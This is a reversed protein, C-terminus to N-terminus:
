WKEGLKAQVGIMGRFHVSQDKLIGIVVNIEFM